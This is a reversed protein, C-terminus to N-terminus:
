RQRIDGSGPTSANLSPSGVYVIEGSGSVEATLDDTVNVAASGSGSLSVDGTEALLEEGDFRGSGSLSVDLRDTTGSVTIEGSGRLSVTTSGFDGDVEIEGSGGLDLDFDDAEVDSVEIDGSGSLQLGVLSVATIRYVVDETPSIQETTDLALTTGEVDSTLLQLLNDDAEITLSESDGIEILVTGSGRLDIQDFGSVQREESAIDGSGRTGTVTIECATLVLAVLVAQLGIRIAAHRKMFSSPVTALHDKPRQAGGTDSPCVNVTM